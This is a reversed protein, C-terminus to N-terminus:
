CEAYQTTLSELKYELDFIEDESLTKKKKGESIQKKTKKIEDKLSKKTWVIEKEIKIENGFSDKTTEQDDKKEKQLVDDSLKQVSEGERRVHGAEMIWKETCVANAFERNHSIIIVGGKYEHIASVLAGLADRDLYNTPEDLIILHPHFWLSAALVIKVKQGGSLSRILTHSAQEPEVGFDMLYEEISKTTLLRNMLGAKAAEVEDQKNVLKIAGMRILIERSIWMNSDSSKNKWKTEYEKTKAKKNERRALLVEPEVCQKEESPTECIRLEGNKLFFKKIENENVDGYDDIKEIAEKDHNGAFRWMIYETPTRHLHKELHHFAHQAVYALRLNPHKVISGDTPKLEGILVKIATSKGAGNAGIVAIRSIRSCELNINEITNKDRTPYRFSVNTMKLISKSWSKVGELEGPQPFTFRVIDNKLEFYGSKEPYAKVFGDLSGKWTVLKRKQFDIIHTTMENLFASDHSTTMVSGGQKMFDKLWNKIWAINTVDLHGTPEDLMLIDANLLTAACLQMKMKWGGSYTTVPMDIDAARELQRKQSGFGISLMVNEVQELSVKPEMGSFENVYDLIWEKGSLDINFIPYGTEDEGVEREEIEHEVFITRLEDKKPFGEIQERNIARM